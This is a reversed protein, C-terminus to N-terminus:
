SLIGELTEVLPLFHDRYVRELNRSTFELAGPRFDYRAQRSLSELARYHKRLAPHRKWADSVSMATWRAEHNRPHGMKGPLTEALLADALHLACYFWGVV